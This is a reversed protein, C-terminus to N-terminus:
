VKFNAFVDVGGEVAVGQLGDIDEFRGEDAGIARLKCLDEVSEFCAVGLVARDGPLHSRHLVHERLVVGM